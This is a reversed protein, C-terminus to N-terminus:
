EETITNFPKKNSIFYNRAEVTDSDIQKGDEILGKITFNWLKQWTTQQM